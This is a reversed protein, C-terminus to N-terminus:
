ALLLGAHTYATIFTDRVGGAGSLSRRAHVAEGAMQAASAHGLYHDSAVRGLKGLTCPAHQFAIIESLVM